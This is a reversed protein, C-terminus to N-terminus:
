DFVEEAEVGWLAAKPLWGRYRRSDRLCLLSDCPMPQEVRVRCWDPGCELLRALANAEVSAVIQAADDPRARLNQDTQTLVYRTGSLLAFHMWGGQGDRDEVRRWHGYEAIVRLPTNRTTFVWDIRHNTSPGRRAYGEEARMSVYRPLPLNTEPGLVPADQAHVACAAAVILATLIMRMPRSPM